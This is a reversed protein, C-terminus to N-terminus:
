RLSSDNYYTTTRAEMGDLRHVTDATVHYPKPM